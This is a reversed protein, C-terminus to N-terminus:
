KDEGDRSKRIDAVYRISELYQDAAAQAAEFVGNLQLSAEAISGAKDILIQRNNLKEEATKLQQKVLNHEESLDVLMELLDSRSLKRLERDTM